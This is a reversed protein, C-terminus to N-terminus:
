KKSFVLAPKGILVRTNSPVDDTLFVNSGITVNDGIKINGLLSAGAYITVDNGVQPHRVVGRLKAANSLSVAGLTVCQYLKVRKGITSTQGIVIGTGHDIFFPYDIVAGPHIDIGTASHALESFFRAHVTFGLKYLVHSIRYIAIAKYGPYAMKIEDLSSAAPDSDMFFQLDEKLIKRLGILKQEFQTYITEDDTISRLFLEKLKQDNEECIVFSFSSDLLASLDNKCIM